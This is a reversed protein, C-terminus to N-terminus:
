CNVFRIPYQTTGILDVVSTRRFAALEDAIERDFGWRLKPAPRPRCSGTLWRASINDDTECALCDLDIAM